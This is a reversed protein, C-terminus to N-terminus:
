ARQAGSAAKTAVIVKSWFAFGNFWVLPSWAVVKARWTTRRGFYPLFSVRFGTREFAARWQPETYINEIVGFQREHDGHHVVHGRNVPTVFRPIGPENIAILSGDARLVRSAERLVTELDDTHHLAADVVVFDLSGDPFPLSHFDGLHFRIKSLDGGRREVIAPAVKTLLAESFDLAHITRVQDLKSLEASFWCTGAGIELGEGGPVLHRDDLFRIIGVKNKEQRRSWTEVDCYTEETLQIDNRYRLEGDNAQSSFPHRELM